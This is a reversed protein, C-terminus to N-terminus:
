VFKYEAYEEDTDKDKIVRKPYYEAVYDGGDILDTVQQETQPDIPELYHM